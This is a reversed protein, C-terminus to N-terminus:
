KPKKDHETRKTKIRYNRRMDVTYVIAYALYESVVGKAELERDFQKLYNRLRLTKTELGQTSSMVEAVKKLQEDNLIEGLKNVTLESM